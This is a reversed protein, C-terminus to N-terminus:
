IESLDTVDKNGRSINGPYIDDSARAADMEFLGWDNIWWPFVRLRSPIVEVRKIIFKCLLGRGEELKM